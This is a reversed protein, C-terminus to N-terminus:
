SAPRSAWAKGYAGLPGYPGVAPVAAFAAAGAARDGSQTLALGLRFNAQSVDAGPKTLALKYMEAAQAYDKYGYLLDGTTMVSKFTSKPGKAGTVAAPVSAKDPGLKPKSIALIERTNQSTAPVLKGKAVGENLVDVAEAPYKLYVALAYDVYNSQAALSLAGVARALRLLDLDAEGGLAALQRYIFLSDHWNQPDPYAALWSNTIKVFEAPLKSRSAMDAGRAFWASPVPQGSAAKAEMVNVLTAVAETPKGNRYQSDALLAPLEAETSGNALATKLAAEAKPYNKAMYAFQGRYWYFQTKQTPTLKNAAEGATILEDLAAALKGQDGSAQAANLAFQAVMFQEDPTQAAARAAALGAEAGAVDKKNLAAEVPALAKRVADSLKIQPTAAEEKKKAFAPTTPAAAVLAMGLAAFLAYRSTSNM